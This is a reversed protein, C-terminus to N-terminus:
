SHTAAAGHQPMAPNAAAPPVNAATSKRIQARTEVLTETRSTWLHLAIEVAVKPSLEIPEAPSNPPMFPPFLQGGREPFYRAAVRANGKGYMADIAILMDVPVVTGGHGTFRELAQIMENRQVIRGDGPRVTESPSMVANVVRLFELAESGLRTNFTRVEGLWDPKTMGLTNFFDALFDGDKFERRSFLRVTIRDRGIANEWLALMRDYDYFFNNANPLKCPTTRGGKVQTSYASPFLEYQPRLYVIVRVDDSIKTMTAIARHVSEQTHLASSLHESSFLIRECGSGAIEEALRSEFNSRFDVPFRMHLDAFKLRSESPDVAFHVLGFHSGTNGLLPLAPYLLGAAKAADRTRKFLEQITSTGTKETGIHLFVSPKGSASSM